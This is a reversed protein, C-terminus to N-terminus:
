IIVYMMTSTVRRYVNQCQHFLCGRIRFPAPFKAALAAKLGSEHDAMSETWQPAEGILVARELLVDIVMEYIPQSKGSCLFYARPILRQMRPDVEHAMSCITVLQYFPKPCIKYTGDIYITKAKCLETFFELTCFGLIFNNHEGNPVSPFSKKVMNFGVGSEARKYEEPLNLNAFTDPIVPIRETRRRSYSSNLSRASRMTGVARPNIIQLPNIM